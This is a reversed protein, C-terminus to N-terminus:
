KPLYITQYSSRVEYGVKRYLAQAKTNEENVFLCLSVTRSLLISALQSLCRWAYGKGREEPHVYVGELFVVEPTDSIVDAKFILRGNNTLVWERGLAIRRLARQRFGAPDRELPNVGNEACVMAAVVEIIPELDAVTALRLGAVPQVGSVPSLQELLLERCIRRPARGIQAFCNMVREMPPPEGRLLHINLHNRAVLALADLAADSHAEILTAHGILAVGELQGAADRYAYFSGRNLPSVLGNDRIMGAMFVTHIPRVALFAFVEAEHEGTLAHVDAREEPAGNPPLIQQLIRGPEISTFSSSM